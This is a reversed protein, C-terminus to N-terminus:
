TRKRKPTTPAESEFVAHRKPLTPAPITARYDEAARDLALETPSRGVRSGCNSCRINTTARQWELVRAVIRAIARAATV